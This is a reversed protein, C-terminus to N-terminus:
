FLQRGNQQDTVMTVNALAFTIWDSLNYDRTAMGTKQKEKHHHFLHETSQVMSNVQSWLLQIALM